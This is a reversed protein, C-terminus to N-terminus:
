EDKLFDLNINKRETSFVAYINSTKINDHSKVFSILRIGHSISQNSYDVLEEISGFKKSFYKM